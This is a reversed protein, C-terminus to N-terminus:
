ARLSFCRDLAFTWSIFSNESLESAVSWPSRTARVMSRARCGLAAVLSALGSIAQGTALTRRAGLARRSLSRETTYSSILPNPPLALRECRYLLSAPVNSVVVGLGTAGVAAGALATSGSIELAFLAVSTATLEASLQNILSPLYIPWVLPRLSMACFFLPPTGSAGVKSRYDTARTGVM